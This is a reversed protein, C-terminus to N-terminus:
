NLIVSKAAKTARNMFSAIIFSKVETPPMRKIPMLKLIKFIFSILTILISGANNIM